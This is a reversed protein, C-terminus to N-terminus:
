RTPEGAHEVSSVCWRMHVIHGNTRAVEGCGACQAPSTFSPSKLTTNDIM